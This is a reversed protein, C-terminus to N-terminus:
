AYTALCSVILGVKGKHECVSLSEIAEDKASLDIQLLQTGEVM